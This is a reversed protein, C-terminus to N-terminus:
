ELASPTLRILDKLVHLQIETLDELIRIPIFRRPTKILGLGGRLHTLCM